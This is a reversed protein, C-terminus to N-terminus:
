RPLAGLAKSLLQARHEDSAAEWLGTLVEYARVSVPIPVALGGDELASLAVAALATANSLIASSLSEKSLSGLLAELARATSPLVWLHVTDSDVPEGQVRFYYLNPDSPPPVDFYPQIKIGAATTVSFRKRDTGNEFIWLSKSEKRIGRAPTSNWEAYYRTPDPAYMREEFYLFETLSDEWLLWGTRMDARGDRATAAVRETRAVVLAAYQRLVDDKVLLASRDIDEIRISRTASPHMLTTGCVSKIPRGGLQGCRLMKLEVGLGEHEIDIHLNSWGTDPLGKANCYVTTWDGEELKRGYMQAVQTALLRKALQAQSVTFTPLPSM